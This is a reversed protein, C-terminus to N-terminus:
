ETHLAIQPGKFWHRARFAYWPMIICLIGVYMPVTWKFTKASPNPESPFSFIPLTFVTWAISIWRLPKSWKGLTFPGPIYDPNNENITRMLIPMLYSIAGALSSGAFFANLATTSGLSILGVLAIITSLTITANVPTHTTSNIHSIWKSGPLAGDRAYAFYVRCGATTMVFILGFNSIVTLAWLVRAFAGDGLSSILLAGLPQELPSM